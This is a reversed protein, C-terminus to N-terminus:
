RKGPWEEPRLVARRRLMARMRSGRGTGGGAAAALTGVSAAIGVVVTKDVPVPGINPGLTQATAAGLSAAQRLGLEPAVRKDIGLPIGAKEQLRRRRM